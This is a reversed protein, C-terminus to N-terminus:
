RLSPALVPDPVPSSSSRPAIASATRRWGRLMVFGCPVLVLALLTAGLVGGSIAVALPPWFEGGSLLLPLFGAVTTVTTTLIHRTSRLVIDRVANRDGARARESSQLAALVVISDNVALGVLGMCGIIATFGFPDDMVWLSLVGLGLSLIAVVGILGAMRFSQFTLVLTAGMLIALLGVSAMLKGVADDRESSEGGFEMRYGAPVAFGREELRQRFAELEGSPLVGATLFGQVTVVREGNRHPISAWEPVVELKGLTTAPVNVPLGSADIGVLDLSEIAAIRDRNSRKLRVRVPLEETEEMISGGNAGDLAAQLERAIEVHRRDVERTEDEDLDLFLKPQGHTLTARTHTVDVGAALIERAEEGLRHLRELDPGLLRLEIPAEFPPGQELQLVLTQAEPITADLERQVQRIIRRGVEASEMRVMAQAFYPSADQGNMMNYYFAPASNGLFWHVESIEGHAALLADAQEVAKQTEAITAQRPLTMQIQFQDRDAPPFFQERLQSFVAFGFLPLFFAFAVGTWPRRLAFGLAAAFVRTIWSVRLGRSFWRQHDRGTGGLRATLAAVVTLSLFLSSLLALIVTMSIPGVFEGAPGPMLAIPLFALITTLTSGLLPIALHRVAERVARGKDQGEGLRERVEDVAIIANDILLGLAIILGTLSMQHLPLEFARMLGFVLLATLPLATGVLLSARWGMFLLTVLFVLLTGLTLNNWLGSFRSEVYGSQDFLIKLDLSPPLTTAFGDLDKRVREAWRDTRVTGVARAAVAIAPLGDSRVLESPPTQMGRRIEAIDALRVARGDAGRVVLMEGLQQVTDADGEVELPASVRAGELRGAPIKTDTQRLEQALSAVSMGLAALRTSQVEVVIEETPEGFRKTYETGPANRLVDELAEGFRRMLPASPPNEGIWRLGAVLTYADNEDDDFDPRSAAAPLEVDDLSDRIRSWVEDVETIEDQLELRTVSIGARSTSELIKLEEFSRLEDEIKQSVLSEVREATAGPMTTRITAFRPTLKPDETRPLLNLATVGSAVALVVTLILLRPNRYYLDFM